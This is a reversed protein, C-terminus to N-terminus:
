SFKPHTQPMLMKSMMCARGVVYACAVVLDATTVANIALPFEHTYIYIHATRVDKPPLRGRCCLHRGPCPTLTKLHSRSMCQAIYTYANWRCEYLLAVCLFVNSLCLFVYGRQLYGYIDAPKLSAAGAERANDPGARWNAACLGCRAVRSM